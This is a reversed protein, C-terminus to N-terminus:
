YDVVDFEGPTLDHIRYEIEAPDARETPPVEILRGTVATRNIIYLLPRWKGIDAHDVLYVIAAEAKGDIQGAATAKLAMEKMTQRWERINKDHADPREITAARLSSFLEAPNSSPPLRAGSHLRHSRADFCDACWVFHVHGFYDRNIEFKLLPNTSYLYPGAM